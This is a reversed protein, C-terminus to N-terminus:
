TQKYRIIELLNEYDDTCSNIVEGDYPDLYDGLFINVADKRVLKQWTNRGHIDGILNYLM